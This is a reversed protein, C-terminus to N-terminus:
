VSNGLMGMAQVTTLAKTTYFWIHEKFLLKQDFFFRLYHWTVQPRLLTDGMFPQFGLDIPLDPNGRARTFHFVESKTHELVLSLSTFAHYIWGYAEKLPELNDELHSSHTILTGNDVYSMVDVQCGINSASSLKLIPVLCLLLLVPSLASGQGVVVDALYPGSMFANWKYTTRRGVLYSHFIRGVCPPFGLKDIVWLLMDHNISPFFQAIDFMVMSTQLGEAWGACVLHTLYVGADETSRQTVGGFQMPHFAGHAVGDFQLRRSLLKEFLKGFTNLLVIPQFSKPMLYKPKGLKLIIVSLSEKFHSPLHGVQVCAEAVHVFLESV